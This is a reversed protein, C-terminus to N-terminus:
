KKAERHKKFDPWWYWGIFYPVLIPWGIIFTLMMILFIPVNAGSPLAVLLGAVAGILLYIEFWSMNYGKPISPLTYIFVKFHFSPGVTPM